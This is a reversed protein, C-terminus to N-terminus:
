STTQSLNTHGTCKQRTIAGNTESEGHECVYIYHIELRSEIHDSWRYYRTEMDCPFARSCDTRTTADYATNNSGAVVTICTMAEIQLILAPLGPVFLLLLLLPPMRHESSHLADHHKERHTGDVIDDDHVSACRAHMKSGVCDNIADVNMFIRADCVESQANTLIALIITKSILLLGSM